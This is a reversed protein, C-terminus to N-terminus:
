TLFTEHYGFYDLVSKDHLSFIFIESICQNRKGFTHVESSARLLQQFQETRMTRMVPDKTWSNPINLSIKTSVTELCMVCPAWVSCWHAAWTGMACVPWIQVHCHRFHCSFSATRSFMSFSFLRAIIIKIPLKLVWACQFSFQCIFLAWSNLAPLFDSSFSIIRHIITIKCTKSTLLAISNWSESAGWHGEGITVLLYFYM